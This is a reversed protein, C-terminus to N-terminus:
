SRSWSMCASVGVGGNMFVGGKMFLIRTCWGKNM